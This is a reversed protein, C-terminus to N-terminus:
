RRKGAFVGMDKAAQMFDGACRQVGERLEAIHKRDKQFRKMTRLSVLAIVEQGIKDDVEPLAAGHLLANRDKACEKLRLLAKDFKELHPSRPHQAKGLARVVDIAKELQFNAMVVKTVANNRILRNALMYIVNEVASFWFVLEGMERHFGDLNQENDAPEKTGTMTLARTSGGFPDKSGFRSDMAVRQM